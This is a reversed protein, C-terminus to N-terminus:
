FKIVVDTCEERGAALGREFGLTAVHKTMILVAGRYLFQLCHAPSKAEPIEQWNERCWDLNEAIPTDFIEAASEFSIAYALLSPEEALLEETWLLGLALGIALLNYAFAKKLTPILIRTSDKM